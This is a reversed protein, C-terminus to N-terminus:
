TVDLKSIKAQIYKKKEKIANSGVKKKKCNM